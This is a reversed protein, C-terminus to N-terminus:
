SEIQLYGFDHGHPALLFNLVGLVLSIFHSEHSMMMLGTSM